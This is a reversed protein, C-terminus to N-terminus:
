ILQLYLQGWIEQEQLNFTGQYAVDDVAWSRCLILGMELVRLHDINFYRLM